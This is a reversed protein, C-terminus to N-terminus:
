PRGRRATQVDLMMSEEGAGMATTTRPASWAAVRPVSAPECSWYVEDRECEPEGLELPVPSTEPAEQVGVAEQIAAWGWSCPCSDQRGGAWAYSTSPKMKKLRQVLEQRAVPRGVPLTEMLRAGRELDKSQSPAPRTWARTSVREKHQVGQTCRCRPVRCAGREQHGQGAQSEDEVARRCPTLAVTGTQTPEGRNWTTGRRRRREMPHVLPARQDSAM